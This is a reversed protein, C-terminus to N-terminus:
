GRSLHAMRAKASDRTPQLLDWKNGFTDQFVAVTGYPENRPKELFVIGRKLMLAHDAAFDDTYLFFGVRGGTQDGIRRKQRTDRPETLLLAAGTSNPPRVTVWRKGNGLATDTVLDFGMQGVYFALGSDYDPVILTVQAITQM